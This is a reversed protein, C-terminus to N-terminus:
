RATSRLEKLEPLHKLDPLGTPATTTAAVAPAHPLREPAVKRPM